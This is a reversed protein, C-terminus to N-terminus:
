LVELVATAINDFYKFEKQGKLLLEEAKKLKNTNEEGSNEKELAVQIFQITRNFYYEDHEPLHMFTNANKQCHVQLIEIAGKLEKVLADGELPIIKSHEKLQAKNISSEYEDDSSDDDFSMFPVSM